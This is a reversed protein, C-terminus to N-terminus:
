APLAADRHDHLRRLARRRQQAHLCHHAHPGDHPHVTGEAVWIEDGWTATTLATQLDCADAWTTCGGAGTPTVHHTVVATPALPSLISSPSYLNSSPPHLTSSLPLAPTHTTMGLSTIRPSRLTTTPPTSEVLISLARAGDMDGYRGVQEPEVRPDSVDVIEVGASGDAVYVLTGSIALGQAIGPTRFNAGVYGPLPIVCETRLRYLPPEGALAVYAPTQYYEREAVTSGGCPSRFSNVDLNYDEAVTTYRYVPMNKTWWSFEYEDDVRTVSLRPALTDVADRWVNQTSQAVHGGMDAGRLDLRYEGELGEPPATSWTGYDVGAGSPTPAVAQWSGGASSALSAIETGVARASLHAGRGSARSLDPIRRTSWM